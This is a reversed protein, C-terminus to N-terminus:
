PVATQPSSTALPDADVGAGPTEGFCDIVLRHPSDLTYARYTSIGAADLVVRTTGHERRGIRVRPVIEGGFRLVQGTLSSDVRTSRLDVYIRPPNALREQHFSIEADLEVTVRVAGPLAEHVIRTVTTPPAGAPASPEEAPAALVHEHLPEEGPSPSGVEASDERPALDAVLGPLLGAFRSTLESSVLVATEGGAPHLDANPLVVRAASITMVAPSTQGVLPVRSALTSGWPCVIILGAIGSVSLLAGRGRRPETVQEPWLPAISSRVGAFQASIEDPIETPKHASPKATTSAARAPQTRTLRRSERTTESATRGALLEAEM